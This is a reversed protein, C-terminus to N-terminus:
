PAAPLKLLRRANGSAIARAEADDVDALLHALRKRSHPWYSDSHPFDSQWLMRDVGIERRQRIAAPDDIFSAHVHRRVLASPAVGPAGGPITVGARREWFFDMRETLYALWGAGGELMVVRLDPHRSLVGSFVLQTVAHMVDLNGLTLLAGLSEGAEDSAHWARGSSGIHVFMPLEHREIATFLPEWYPNDVPPLGLPRPDNPFSVGRAGLAAVREIELAAAAPDALPLLALGVLREPDTPCFEGLAFDNYARVLATWLEGRACLRLREGAFGCVHPLLTHVAVGDADMAALRATPDFAAPLMEEARRAPVVADLGEKRAVVSLQSFRLLEGGFLWGDEGEGPVDVVRPADGALGGPLRSTWLDPPEILHDNVSVLDASDALM